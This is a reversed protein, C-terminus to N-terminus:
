KARRKLGRRTEEKDHKSRYGLRTKLTQIFADLDDFSILRSEHNAPVQCVEVELLGSAVNEKTQAGSRAILVSKGSVNQLTIKWEDSIEIAM